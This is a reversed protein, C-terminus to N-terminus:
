DATMYECQMVFATLGFCAREQLGISSRDPFKLNKEWDMLMDLYIETVAMMYARLADCYKTETIHLINNAGLPPLPKKYTLHVCFSRPLTSSKRHHAILIPFVKSLRRSWTEAKGLHISSFFIIETHLVVHITSPIM